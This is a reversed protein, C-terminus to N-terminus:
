PVLVEWVPCYGVDHATLLTCGVAQWSTMTCGVNIVLMVPLLNLTAVQTKAYDQRVAAKTCMAIYHLSIFSLIIYAVKM